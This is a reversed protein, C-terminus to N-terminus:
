REEADGPGLSWMLSQALPTWLGIPLGAKRLGEGVWVNCSRLLWFRHRGRLFADGAGHSVGPLIVPGGAEDLQLSAEVHGVLARYGAESITFSRLDTGTRVAAVPQVHVVSRDFATSKLILGLSLDALTGLETYATEAGWGFAVFPADRYPETLPSVALLPRWDKDAGVTPLVIDTHFGNSAVYITVNREGPQASESGFPLAGAVIALVCVLALAALSLAVHRLGRGFRRATGRVAAKAM